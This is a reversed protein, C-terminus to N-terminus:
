KPESNYFLTIALCHFAEDSSQTVSIECPRCQPHSAMWATVKEGLVTTCNKAYSKSQTTMGGASVTVVGTTDEAVWLKGSSSHRLYKVRWPAAYLTIDDPRDGGLTVKRFSGRGVREVPQWDPFLREPPDVM